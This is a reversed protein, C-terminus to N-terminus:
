FQSFFHSNLNGSDLILFTGNVSFLDNSVKIDTPGSWDIYKTSLAELVLYQM